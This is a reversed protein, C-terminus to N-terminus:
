YKKCKGEQDYKRFRRLRRSWDDKWRIVISRKDLIIGNGRSKHSSIILYRRGLRIKPCKCILDAQSVWFEQQGRRVRKPGKKYVQMVNATFKVYNDISDRAVM